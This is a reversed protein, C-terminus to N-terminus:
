HEPTQVHLVVLECINLHEPTEVLLVVLELDGFSVLKRSECNCCMCAM